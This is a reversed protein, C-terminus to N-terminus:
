TLQSAPQHHGSGSGAKALALAMHRGLGRSAGTVMAVRGSLDFLESSM